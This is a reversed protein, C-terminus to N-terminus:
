FDARLARQGSVVTFRISAIAGVAAIRGAARALKAKDTNALKELYTNSKLVEDILAYTEELAEWAGESLYERHRRLVDAMGLLMMVRVILTDHGEAEALRNGWDKLIEALPSQSTV